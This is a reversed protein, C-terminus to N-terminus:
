ILSSLLNLFMHYICIGQAYYNIAKMELKRISDEANNSDQCINKHVPWHQQQCERNCYIATRCQSCRSSGEVEKLCRLCNKRSKSNNGINMSSVENNLNDDCSGDADNMNSNHQNM